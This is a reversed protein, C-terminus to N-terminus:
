PVVVGIMQTLRREDATPRNSRTENEDAVKIIKVFDRALKPQLLKDSHGTM